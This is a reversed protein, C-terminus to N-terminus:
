KQYYLKKDNTIRWNALLQGNLESEKPDTIIDWSLINCASEIAVIKESSQSIKEIASKECYNKNFEPKDANTYVFIIVLMLLLYWKKRKPSINNILFLSTKGFVFFLSLTVPMITDYRIINHRYERYGGLPLLIIYLLAFIGVWKFTNLMKNGEPNNYHRYIIISNIALIIILLPYGPKQTLLYYLGEPIRKYMEWLPIQQQISYSNYRGLFLSYFSFLCLPALYFWYKKPVSSISISIKKIFNNGSTKVYNNAISNWFLLVSFIIAIGPNLAGHLSVILAFPIWLIYILTQKKCKKNYYFERILPLFYILLLLCPLAYFFTYTTAPDIIGMYSRYGNTQFLPTILIAAIAFNMKFINRTNSILMALLVIILIQILTKSIACSLYVAEVPDVFYQLYLPVSTMFERYMWHCFFRNPNTYTEHNLIAKIGIPDDFIKQVDSAPVLLAPMDGDLTQSYHQVFSYTMDALLLLILIVYIIRRIM